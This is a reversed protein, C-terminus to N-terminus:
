GALCQWKKLPFSSSGTAKARLKKAHWQCFKAIKSLLLNHSAAPLTFTLSNPDVEIGIIVLLAGSVQKKEKHPIGLEDCLCLLRYQNM